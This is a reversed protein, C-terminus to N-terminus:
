RFSPRRPRRDPSNRCHSKIERDLGGAQTVGEAALKVAVVRPLRARVERGAEALGADADRAGPRKQSLAAKRGVGYFPTLELLRREFSSLDLAVEIPGTGRKLSM